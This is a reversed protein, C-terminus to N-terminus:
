TQCLFEKLLDKLYEETSNIINAKHNSLTSIFTEFEKLSIKDTFINHKLGYLLLIQKWIPVPETSGQQLMERVLHGKKLIAEIEQTVQSSLKTFELYEEFQALEIKLSGSLKRVIPYQCEGGIRSVSISTKIAPRLNKAFEEQSLIIQGDTISIVNTSIYSSIDGALTEVVPFATLSGGGHAKGLQAARELLKAHLFFIDGPFAERGPPRKMILSLDRYATAHYSLNDYILIAHKKKDRFYEGMACGVMPSLYRMSSPDSSNACIIIFNKVEHKRLTDLIRSCNNVKQGISVYICVADPNEKQSLMITNAISTKGTNMDGLILQRQGFGVPILSDIVKVGTVLQNKVASRDIMEPAPRDVDCLEGDTIAELGDIPNGYGDFVRGLCKESALIKFFEKTRRVEDKSKIDRSNGLIMVTITSEEMTMVIGKINNRTFVVVEEMFVEDLGSIIAIGDYVSIVEGFDNIESNIEFNKITKELIDKLKENAMNKEM